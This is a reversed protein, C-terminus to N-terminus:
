KDKEVRATVIDMTVVKKCSLCFFIGNEFVLEGEHSCVKEEPVPVGESVLPTFQKELTSLLHGEFYPTFELLLKRGFFSRRLKVGVSFRGIHSRPYLYKLVQEAQAYIQKELVKFSM